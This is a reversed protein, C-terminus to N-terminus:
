SQAEKDAAARALRWQHAAIAQWLVRNVVFPDRAMESAIAAKAQLEAARSM